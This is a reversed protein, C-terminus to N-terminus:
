SRTGDDHAHRIREVVDGGLRRSLRKRLRGFATGAIWRVLRTRLPAGIVRHFWNTM